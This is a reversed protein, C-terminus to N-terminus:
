FVFESTECIAETNFGIMRLFHEQMISINMGENVINKRKKQRVIQGFIWAKDYKSFEPFAEDTALDPFYKKLVHFILVLDFLVVNNEESLVRANARKFSAKNRYLRVHWSGINELKMNGYHLSPFPCLVRPIYVDIFYDM